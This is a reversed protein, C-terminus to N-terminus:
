EAFAHNPVIHILIAVNEDMEYADTDSWEFDFQESDTLIDEIVANFKKQEIANKLFLETAYNFFHSVDLILLPDKDSLEIAEDNELVIKDNLALLEDPATFTLDDGDFIFTIQNKM